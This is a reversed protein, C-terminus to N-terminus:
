DRAIDRAISFLWTKESSNGQFKSNSKLVRIYVEQFLIKRCKERNKVMYFLFQFVDHHYKEYLEEFNSDMTEGWRENLRFAVLFPLNIIVRGKTNIM